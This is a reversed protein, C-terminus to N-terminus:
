FFSFNACNMCCSWAFSALGALSAIACTESTLDRSKRSVQLQARWMYMYKSDLFLRRSMCPSNRVGYLICQWGCNRLVCVTEPGNVYYYCSHIGLETQM